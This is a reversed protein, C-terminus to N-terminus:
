FAIDDDELGAHSGSDGNIAHKYEPSQVILKKVGDSFGEFQKANFQGPDLSFFITPNVLEPATMGKPTKSISGVRIKGKDNMVLSIMCTKGLINMADFGLLEEPTFDRGRWGALDKRLISKENLSQTYFKSVVFPKGDSMNENLEWGIICQRKSTKQGQYEGEQTGIDIIKYCTGVYSGPEPNEFDGNGSDAWKM